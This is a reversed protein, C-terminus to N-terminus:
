GKRVVIEEFTYKSDKSEDEEALVATALISSLFNSDETEFFELNSNLITTFSLLFLLSIWKM